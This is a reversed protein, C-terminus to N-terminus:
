RANRDGGREVGAEVAPPAEVQEAARRHDGAGGTAPAPRSVVTEVEPLEPM